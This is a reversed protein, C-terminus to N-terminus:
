FRKLLGLLLPPNVYGELLCGVAVAIISLSIRGVSAMATKKDEVRGMSRRFGGERFSGECWSLLFFLSPVYLIYQPFVSILALVLGKLGYRALLTGVFIGGSCGFWVVMGKCVWPGLYTTPLILLLLVISMRKRFVYWFLEASNVAMYKMHYLTNENLFQTRELFYNKGVNLFFVGVVFGVCFLNMYMRCMM